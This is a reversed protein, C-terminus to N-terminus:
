VYTINSEARKLWIDSTGIHHETRYQEGWIDSRTGVQAQIYLVTYKPGGVQLQKLRYVVFHGVQGVVVFHGVVCRGAAPEM